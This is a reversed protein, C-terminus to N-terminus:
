KVKEIIRLLRFYKDRSLPRTEAIEVTDGISCENNEDHVKFKTTTVVIKGYLPHPIKNVVAVVITKNMKNSVVKGTRTKRLGRTEGQKETGKGRPAKVAIPKREKALVPKVPKAVAATKNATAPKHTVKKKAIQVKASPKTKKKAQAM